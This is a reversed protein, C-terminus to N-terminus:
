VLLLVLLRPELLLFIPYVCLAVGSPTCNAFWYCTQAERLGIISIDIRMWYLSLFIETCIVIDM